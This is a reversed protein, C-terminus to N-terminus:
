RNIDFEFEKSQYNHNDQYQTDENNKQRKNKSHIDNYVLNNEYLHHKKPINLNPHSLPESEQQYYYLTRKSSCLFSLDMKSLQKNQTSTKIENNEKDEIFNFPDKHMTRLGRAIDRLTGLKQKWSMALFNKSIFNYLDGNKAFDIVIMYDKTEPHQTIGYYQIISVYHDFCQFYNKLENLFDHSIAESNNLSKLVVKANQIYEFRQKHGNWKDRIGNVCTAKYIKSFGGESIYIIDNFREYPIFEMFSHRSVSIGTTKVLWNDIIKNGNLSQQDCMNCQRASLDKHRRRKKCTKCKRYYGYDM